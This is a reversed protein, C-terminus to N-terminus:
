NLLAIGITLYTAFCVWALYPVFLWASINSVRHFERITLAISIILAMIVIVGLWPLHLGFFVLSWLANLILQLGFWIYAKQKSQKTSELIILALAVGMLLYLVSWVPGFVWNPPNLAPKELAAYWSPINPITALSGIAGATFSAFISLIFVMLKKIM